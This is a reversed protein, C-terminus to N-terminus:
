KKTFLSQSEKETVIKYDKRKPLVIIQDPKLDIKKVGFLINKVQLELILGPLGGFGNPGFSLPIQPCYWSITPFNFVGVGNEVTKASTAKYCVFGNIEKTENLLIWNKKTEKKIIFKGMEGNIESYSFENDQFVVGYYGSFLKAYYYGSEDIGLGDELFFLTM